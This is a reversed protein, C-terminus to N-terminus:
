RFQPLKTRKSYFSAERSLPLPSTMAQATMKPAFVHRHFEWAMLKQTQRFVNGSRRATRPAKDAGATPGKATSVEGILDAM